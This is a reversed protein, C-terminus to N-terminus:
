KPMDLNITVMKCSSNPGGYIRISALTTSKDFGGVMQEENQYLIKFYDVLSHDLVQTVNHFIVENSQNSDIRLDILLTSAQQQSDVM